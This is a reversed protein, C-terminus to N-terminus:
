SPGGWLRARGMFVGRDALWERYGINGNDTLWDIRESLCSALAADKADLTFGGLEFTDDLATVVFGSDDVSSAERNGIEGRALADIEGGSLADLLEREGTDEGLYIVQPKDNSPPYLRTRGVLNESEKAATIFYDPSGDALIEGSLTSVRVGPVLIGDEGALGTLQLLRAEGTTGALVGVRTDDRLDQYTALRNADEARVLLSQRFAIHGSTFVVAERGLHDKTRSELITIGGGVIDYEPSRPM